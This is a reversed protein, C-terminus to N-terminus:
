KIHLARLKRNALFHDWFSFAIFVKDVFAAPKRMARAIGEEKMELPEILEMQEFDIIVLPFFSFAKLTVISADYGSMGSIADEIMKRHSDSNGGASSLAFFAVIAIGSVILGIKLLT